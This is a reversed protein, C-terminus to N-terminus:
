EAKGPLHWKTVGDPIVILNWTALYQKGNFEYIDGAYIGVHTVNVISKVKQNKLHSEIITRQNSPIANLPCFGGNPKKIAV